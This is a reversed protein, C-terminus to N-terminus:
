PKRQTPTTKEDHPDWDFRINSQVAGNPPSVSLIRIAEQVKEPPLTKLAQMLVPQVPVGTLKGVYWTVVSVILTSITPKLAPNLWAALSMAVLALGYGGAKVAIAKSEDSV